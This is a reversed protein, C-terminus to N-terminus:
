KGKKMRRFKWLTEYCGAKFIKASCHIFIEVSRASEKMLCSIFSDTILYNIYTSEAFQLDANIPVLVIFAFSVDEWTSLALRNISGYHCSTQQGVILGVFTTRYSGEWWGFSNGGDCVAVKIVVLTMSDNWYFIWLCAVRSVNFINAVYLNQM